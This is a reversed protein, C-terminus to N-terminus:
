FHHGGKPPHGSMKHSHPAPKEIPAIRVTCDTRETHTKFKGQLTSKLALNRPYRKLIRNCGMTLIRKAITLMPWMGKPMKQRKWKMNIYFDGQGGKREVESEQQNTIIKGELRFEPSICRKGIEM